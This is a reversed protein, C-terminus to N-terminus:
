YKGFDKEDLSIIDEPRVKQDQSRPLAKAPGSGWGGTSAPPAQPSRAKLPPAAPEPLGKPKYERAKGEDKLQFRTLLQRLNQSQASLEEAASATEEATSTNQQTVQDIQGLGLNIQSIGQAQENSAAAIEGILDAAKTVTEVIQGLSDATLNVIEAGKEVKKVSSEILEATERAAKASRGALNRVEQAVVAFGKGHKGARAAEVAANLALLNTQFAIDDIAKIIKAIERSSENIEGMASIMESMKKNGQEAADRAGLALKNAQSANEANTKTQSGVETMSSGIEELSAAQESAGQSLAQSSDAVEGSGSAVQYTSDRIQALLDNLTAVMTRLATGLSDKESALVVDVRLDGVAIRSALETKKRLSETMFNFSQALAGLEDKSQLDLTVDLDGASVANAVVVAQSLPRTIGRSFYFILFCAAVLGIGGVIFISAGIARVPGLFEHQDQTVVVAWKTEPVQAFGAAKRVGKFTYEEVGNQGGMIQRAIDEMGPTESIKLKMILSSDPHAIALTDSTVMFAYGTKGIKVTSIQESLSELKMVAAVIGSIEGGDIKLPVAIVTAPKGTLKSVVVVGSSFKGQLAEKFYSRDAVNISKSKGGLGDSFIRGSSDAALLSEYNQGLEQMFTYLKADLDAIEAASAEIGDAKVKKMAKVTSNGLSVDRMLKIEGAISVQVLKALSEAAVAANRKAAVTLTQSVNFYTYLGVAILPLAVLLIGGVLMKKRISM